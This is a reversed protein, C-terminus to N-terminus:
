GFHGHVVITLTEEVFLTAKKKGAYEHRSVDGGWGDTEGKDIVKV